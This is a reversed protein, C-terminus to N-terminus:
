DDSKDIARFEGRRWYYTLYQGPGRNAGFYVNIGPRELPIEGAPTRLTGANQVGLSAGTAVADRDLQGVLLFVTHTPEASDPQSHLIVLDVNWDARRQGDGTYVYLGAVDDVGDDNFDGTVICSEDAGCRRPAAYPLDLGKFYADYREADIAAQQALANGSCLLALILLVRHM